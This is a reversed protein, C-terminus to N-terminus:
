GRGNFRPRVDPIASNLTEFDNNAKATQLTEVAHNVANPDKAIDEKRRKLFSQANDLTVSGGKMAQALERNAEWDVAEQQQKNLQDFKGDSMTIEKLVLVSNRVVM